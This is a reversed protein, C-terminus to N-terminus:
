DFEKARMDTWDEAVYTPCQARSEPDYVAQPLPIFDPSLSHKCEDNLLVLFAGDTDM